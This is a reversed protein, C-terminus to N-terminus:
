YDLRLQELVPHLGFYRIKKTQLIIQDQLLESRKFPRNYSNENEAKNM